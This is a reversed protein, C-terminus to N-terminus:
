WSNTRPSPVLLRGSQEFMHWSDDPTPASRSSRCRCPCPRARPCRVLGVQDDDDPWFGPVLWGRMSVASSFALRRPAVITATLGSGSAPSIRNLFGCVTARRSRDAARLEGVQEQLDPEAAVQRQELRDALLQELRRPRVAVHEVVLEDVLVGLPKSSSRRRVSRASSPSSSTAAVPSGGVLDLSADALGHAGRVRHDHAPRHAQGLVLVGDGVIRSITLTRSSRPLMPRGPAPRTGPARASWRAPRGCSPCRRSARGRREEVRELASNPKSAAARARAVVGDVRDPRHAVALHPHEHRHAAVEDGAVGSVATVSAASRLQRSVTCTDVFSLRECTTAPRARASGARGQAAGLAVHLGAASCNTVTSSEIPM